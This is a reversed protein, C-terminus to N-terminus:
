QMSHYLRMAEQLLWDRNNRQPEELVAELLAELIKGIIPGPPIGAARLDDGDIALESLELPDRLAAALMDRYTARVRDASPVRVDANRRAAWIANAIRMFPAVDLRGISAIWRRTEASGARQEGSLAEGIARGVSQWAAAYASIRNIDSRSFRLASLARRADREGLEVFLLAIRAIRRYPKRVPGPVALCDLAAVTTDSLNSLSPVLTALAGSQKWLALAAAPRQVQEMTKELEQKVREASLRGLHPASREIAAFTPADITFGFRAAFRIGRLARLRDERM